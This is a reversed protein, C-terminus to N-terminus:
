YAASVADAMHQALSEATLVMGANYMTPIDAVRNAEVAPLRHWAQSEFVPDDDLNVVFLFDADAFVDLNESSYSRLFGDSPQLDDSSVVEFGLDRAVFVNLPGHGLSVDAGTMEGTAFALTVGQGDAPLERSLDAVTADYQDLLEEAEDSKDVVSMNGAFTEKWKEGVDPEDVIFVPAIDGLPVDNDQYYNWWSESVVLLDPDHSAVEELDPETRTGSLHAVDDALADVIPGGEDSFDSAAIPWEALLAFELGTRSDLVVVRDPDAPLQARYGEFEFDITNQGDAGGSTSADGTSCASLGLAFAAALLAGATRSTVTGM